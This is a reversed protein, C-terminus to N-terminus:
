EEERDTADTDHQPCVGEFPKNFDRGLVLEREVADWALKFSKYHKGCEKCYAEIPPAPNDESWRISVMLDDLADVEKSEKIKAWLAEPTREEM